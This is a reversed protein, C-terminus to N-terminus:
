AIRNVFGHLTVVNAAAAFARVILGNQILLGPAVLVLGSEPDITVEITDDPSSVGGWELTLKRAVTDSNVAYLWVEDWGTTGAQATHIVTGPTETAGVKIGRGNTSGSLKEKTLTIAAM